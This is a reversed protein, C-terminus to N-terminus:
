RGACGTAARGASSRRTPSSSRGSRRRARPWACWRSRRRVRRRQHLLVAEIVELRRDLAHGAPVRGVRVRLLPGVKGPGARTAAANCAPSPPWSSCGRRDLHGVDAFADGLDFEDGPVDLGAVATASSWTSASTIVSLAVTSIGDGTAPCPAPAPRRPRASAPPRRRASGCRAAVARPTRGRGRRRAAPAGAVRGAPVRGGCRRRVAACAAAAGGGRRAGRRRAPSARAPRDGRRRHARAGPLEADVQRVHAALPVAPRM